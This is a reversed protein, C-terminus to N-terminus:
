VACIIKGTDSSISNTDDTIVRSGPSTRSVPVGAPTPGICGPCVTDTVTAPMPVSDLGTCARQRRRRACPTRRYPMAGRVPRRDPRGPTHVPERRDPRGPRRRGLTRAMVGVRDVVSRQGLLVGLLVLALGLCQRASLMEGALLVGLLVGTVPNLLGVLGVSGAPLRRLGTFWCVYALATAVVTVYGIALGSRLDVAPPAGEVLLAAPLLLLGGACLQWCTSALVDVEDAWRKGLVFGTCSLLMAAVSALIGFPDIRGAATALLLVVGVVGCGAGAIAAARARERLVLRALLMMAVPSAAMVTSAISTPLLRGALYILVFFAGVNLTGLVASRWWWRGRPLRRAVALLLLGAPVARLVGNWLPAGAPLDHATVYYTSGWAIPAVATVATARLTAEM